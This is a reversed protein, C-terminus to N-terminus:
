AHGMPTGSPPNYTTRTHIMPPMTRRYLRRALAILLAIILLLIIWGILTNPFFDGGFLALGALFGNRSVQLLAYAIADNQPANVAQSTTFVATATTVLTEGAKAIVSLKAQIFITGEQNPTLTGVPLSLTRDRESYGGASAQLFILNKPFVVTVITNYLNRGSVNKYTVVYDITDGPTAMSVIPNATLTATGNGFSTFTNFRDEITLAILPSGNGTGSSTNVYVVQQTNTVTAPTTFSVIDGRAVAGYANTGVARYYYTTNGTTAISNWFNTSNVAGVIQDATRQGLNQTTGYEFYGTVSAGGTTVVLGNLRASSQTISTAATTLVSLQAVPIVPLQPINVSVFTTDTDSDGNCSAEITFTTSAYIPGISVSGDDSLNTKNYFGGFVSVDDADTTKYHLTTFGGSTVSSPSAYFDDVTCSDDEDIEVEVTDTDTQGNACYLTLTYTEDNDLEDTDISGDFDNSDISGDTDGSLSISTGGTTNWSLETTDGEAISDDDAEFSDISCTQQSGVSVTVTAPQSTGNCNAVLTYTTTSYIPLTAVSGSTATSNYSQVPGGTISVSTAGSTSWTLTTTGGYSVSNPSAFLTATCFTQPANYEDNDTASTCGPDSPFNNLGDGDNDIADNCAYITTPTSGVIFSVVIAGQHAWGPEINGINLGASTFINAGNSLTTGTQTQDPYFKVSGFTLTQAQTLNVSASDSKYGGSVSSVSGTFSFSGSTGFPQNLKVITSNATTTGTNHYYIRVNVTQGPAASVSTAWCANNYGSVNVGEQTTHNGIQTTHTCDNTIPDFSSAASAYPAFAVFALAFLSGILIKQIRKM